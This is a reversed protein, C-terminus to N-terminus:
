LRANLSDESLLSLPMGSRLAARLERRLESDIASSSEVLVAALSDRERFKGICQEVVQEVPSERLDIVTSDGGLSRFVGRFKRSYALGVVPVGQSLAAICSHMRSGIFFDCGGIVSKIETAEYEGNVLHVRGAYRDQSSEWIRRCTIEDSEVGPGFVHPVLLIHASTQEMFGEILASICEGYDSKLAFMNRRNYGGIFLLGSVNLGVIPPGNEPEIPADIRITAPKVADLAFAVDPCFEMMKGRAHRGLLRKAIELSELDRALIVPSRKLVFRAVLRAPLSGYPGYTQPLQLTERGLLWAIVCPTAILLLRKLGYIDSFSDGGSINGILLAEHIAELWPVSRLIRKRFRRLPILRYLCALALIWVLHERLRARPSLRYNVVEVPVTKEAIRVLRPGGTRNGYLLAINAGPLLQDFLKVLALALAQCGRNGVDLSAGFLCV